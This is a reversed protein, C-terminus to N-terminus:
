GGRHVLCNRAANISLVDDILEPRELRFKNELYQFKKPLPLRDFKEAEAVMESNWVNGTFQASLRLAGEATKAITGPMSWFVCYKRAWELTTGLAEVCDRLGNALVWSRFQARTEDINLQRPHAPTIQGFSGPIKLDKIQATEASQM